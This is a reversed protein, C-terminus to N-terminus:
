SYLRFIRQTNNYRISFEDGVAKDVIRILLESPRVSSGKAIMPDSNLFEFASGSADEKNM